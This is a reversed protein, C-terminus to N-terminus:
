GILAMCSSVGATLGVLLAIGLGGSSVDGVSGFSLGNVTAATYAMLLILAILAANVYDDRNKSFWPLKESNGIFYGNEQIIEEIKALDPKTTNFHIEVM